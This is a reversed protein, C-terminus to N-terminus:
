FCSLVDAYPVDVEIRLSIGHSIAGIAWYVATIKGRNATAYPTVVIDAAVVVIGV